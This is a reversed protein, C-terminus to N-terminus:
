RSPRSRRSRRAVVGSAWSRAVWAAVRVRSNASSSCCRASVLIPTCWAGPQQAPRPSNLDLGDHQCVPIVAERAVGQSLSRHAARHHLGQAATTIAESAPKSKRYLGSPSVLLANSIPLAIVAAVNCNKGPSSDHKSVLGISAAPDILFTGTEIGELAVVAKSVHM